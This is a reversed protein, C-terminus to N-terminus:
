WAPYLRKTEERRHLGTEYNLRLRITASVMPEQLALLLPFVLYRIQILSTLSSDVIEPQRKRLPVCVAAASDYLTGRSDISLSTIDYSDADLM